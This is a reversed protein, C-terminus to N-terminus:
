RSSRSPGAASPVSGAPHGLAMIGVAEEDLCAIGLLKLKQQLGGM